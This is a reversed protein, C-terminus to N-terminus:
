FLHCRCRRCELFRGLGAFSSCMCLFPFYVSRINDLQFGEGRESGKGLRWALFVGLRKEKRPFCGSLFARSSSAFPSVRTCYIFFFLFFSLLFSVMRVYGVRLRGFPQGLFHNM